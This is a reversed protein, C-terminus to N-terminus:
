KISRSRPTPDPSPESASVVPPTKKKQKLFEKYEMDEEDDDSAIPEFKPEKKEEKSEGMLLGLPPLGLTLTGLPKNVGIIWLDGGIISPVATHASWTITRNSEIVSDSRATFHYLAMYWNNSSVSGNNNQVSGVTNNTWCVMRALTGGSGAAVTTADIGTTHTVSNGTVQYLLMFYYNQPYDPMLITNSTVKTGYNSEESIAFATGLAAGSAYGASTFRYHDQEYGSSVTSIRPKLLEVDYSCWIEGINYSGQMGVTSIQFNGLDYMRKDGFSTEGTRTYLVHLPSEGVACEIPHMVSESPKATSVFEYNEQEIKSQFAPMLVNYRTALIVTGLATNISSLANASTSKFEFVMGRVIYEEYNAAVQSLWPFTTGLGPNIPFVTSTFATSGTIDGLFERHRVITGRGNKAFMPPDIGSVISNSSVKYDGHGSIRQFLADAGRGILGGVAKGPAGGLMSGLSAGISTGMGAAKSRSSKKAYTKKYAPKAVKKKYASRLKKLEASLQSKTKSMNKEHPPQEHKYLGINGTKLQNVNRLVWYVLVKQHMVAGKKERHRLWFASFRNSSALSLLLVHRQKQKSTSPLLLCLRNNNIQKKVFRKYRSKGQDV